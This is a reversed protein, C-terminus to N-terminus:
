CIGDKQHSQFIIHGKFKGFIKDVGVTAQKNTQQFHSRLCFSTILFPVTTLNRTDIM